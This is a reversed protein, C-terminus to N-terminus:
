WSLVKEVDSKDNKVQQRKIQTKLLDIEAQQAAESEDLQDIKTRLTNM